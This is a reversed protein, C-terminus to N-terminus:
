TLTDLCVGHAVILLAVSERKSLHLFSKLFNRFSLPNGVILTNMSMQWAGPKVDFADAFTQLPSGAALAVATAILTKAIM